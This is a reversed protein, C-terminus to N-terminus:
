KKGIFEDHQISFLTSYFGINKRAELSHTKGLNDERALILPRKIEVNMEVNVAHRFM